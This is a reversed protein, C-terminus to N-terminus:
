DPGNIGAAYVTYIRHAGLLIFALGVLKFDLLMLLAFGIAGFALGQGFNPNSTDM